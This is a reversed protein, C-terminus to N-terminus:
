YENYQLRQHKKHQQSQSKQVEVKNKVALHAVHELLRMVKDGNTLKGFIMITHYSLHIPWGRKGKILKGDKLVVYETKLHPM